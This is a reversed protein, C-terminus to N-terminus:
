VEAYNEKVVIIEMSGNYHTSIKYDVPVLHCEELLKFLSYRSFYNKHSAERRMADNHGAVVSFAAEFNPTSVWLVGNDDLLDYIKHVAKVPDSVHEIVDGLIIVDWKKNTDFKMFDLQKADIGYKQAQLVNAEAIDVAFVNFEMEQAVLSCECGGIGIELFEIGATFQGLKSLLESYYPFLHTKTPMATDASHKQARDFTERNQEPFEPFEEAYLHNCDECHMWVRVPNYERVHTSGMEIVPYCWHAKGEVGCLPCETQPAEDKKGKYIYSHNPHEEPLMTSCLDPKRSFAKYYLNKATLPDKTYNSIQALRYFSIYATQAEKTLLLYKEAAAEFNGSSFLQEAKDLITQVQFTDTGM